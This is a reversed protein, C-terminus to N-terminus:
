ECFVFDVMAMLVFGGMYYMIGWLMVFSDKSMVFSFSMGCM